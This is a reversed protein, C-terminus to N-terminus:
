AGGRVLDYLAYGALLNPLSGCPTQWDGRLHVRRAIHLEVGIGHLTRRPVEYRGSPDLFTRAAHEVTYVLRPALEGRRAKFVHGLSVQAFLQHRPRGPEITVLYGARALVFVYSKADVVSVVCDETSSIYALEGYTFARASRMARWM